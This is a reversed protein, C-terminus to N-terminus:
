NRDDDDDEIEVRPLVMEVAYGGSDRPGAQLTADRGYLLALRSGLATQSTKTGTHHTSGPGDDIVQLRLRDDRLAVEITVTVARDSAAVAHKIANEVAPQLVFRPVAVHDPEVADDVNLVVRLRTPFRLTELGLYDEVCRLEEALAVTQEAQGELSYRMLNSLREVAEVATVKNDEEILAAVTNLANFLFHPQVRARLADLEARVAARQAQEARLEEERAKKRLRTYLTSVAANVSGVVAGIIWLSSRLRWVNFTGILSLAALALETGIATGVLLFLLHHLGFPLTFGRREAFLYIFQNASGLCITAIVNVLATIWIQNTNGFGFQVLTLVVPIVVYFIADKRYTDLVAQPWPVLDDATSGKRAVTVAASSISPPPPM